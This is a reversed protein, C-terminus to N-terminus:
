ESVRFDIRNSQHLVLQPVQGGGSAGGGPAGAGFSHHGESGAGKVVHYVRFGDNPVYIVFFPLDDSTADGGCNSKKLLMGSDTLSGDVMNRSVYESNLQTWTM